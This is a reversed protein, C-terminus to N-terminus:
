VLATPARQPRANAPMLARAAAGAGSAYRRAARQHIALCGFLATTPFCKGM